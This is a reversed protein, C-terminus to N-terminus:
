KPACQCNAILRSGEHQASVLKYLFFSPFFSSHGQAHTLSPFPGCIFRDGCGVALKYLLRSRTNRMLSLKSHACLRNWPSATHTHHCGHGHEYCHHDQHHVMRSGVLGSLQTRAAQELPRHHCKNEFCSTSCKNFLHTAQSDDTNLTCSSESSHTHLSGAPSGAPSVTETIFAM